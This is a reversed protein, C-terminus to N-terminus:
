ILLTLLRCEGKSLQQKEIMICFSRSLRGELTFSVSWSHLWKLFPKDAPHFHVLLVFLFFFFFFFISHVINCYCTTVSFVCVQAVKLYLFIWIVRFLKRRQVAEVWTWYFVLLLVKFSQCYILAAPIFWKMLWVPYLRLAPSLFFYTVELFLQLLRDNFDTMVCYLPDFM